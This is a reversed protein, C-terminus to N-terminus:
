DSTGLKELSESVHASIVERKEWKRRKGMEEVTLNVSQSLKFFFFFFGVSLLFDFM